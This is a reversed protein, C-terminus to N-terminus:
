PDRRGRARSLNRWLLALGLPVCVFAALWQNRAPVVQHPALVRVGDITMDFVYQGPSDPVFVPVGRSDTTGCPLHRGDPALVGISEGALALELFEGQPIPQRRVARVTVTSGVEAPFPEVSLQQVALWCALTVAPTVARCHTPRSGRLRPGM